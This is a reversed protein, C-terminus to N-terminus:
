SYRAFICNIIFIRPVGTASCQEIGDRSHSSDREHFCPMAHFLLHAKSVWRVGVSRTKNPCLPRHHLESLVTRIQAHGSETIWSLIVSMLQSIKSFIPIFLMVEQDGVNANKIETILIAFHRDHCNTFYNLVSAAWHQIEFNKINM